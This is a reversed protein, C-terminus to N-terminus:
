AGSPRSSCLRSNPPPPRPSGYNSFEHSRRRLLCGCLDKQIKDIRHNETPSLTFLHGAQVRESFMDFQAVGDCDSTYSMLTGRVTPRHDAEPPQLGISGFAYADVGPCSPWSADNVESPWSNAIFQAAAGGLSHGVLTLKDNETRLWFESSIREKEFQSARECITYVAFKAAPFVCGEGVFNSIIQWSTGWNTGPLTITGDPDIKPVVWESNSDGSQRGAVKLQIIDAGTNRRYFSMEVAADFRISQDRCGVHLTNNGPDDSLPEVFTQKGTQNGVVEGLLPRFDSIWTTPVPIPLMDLVPPVHTTTDDSCDIPEDEDRHSPREALQSYRFLEKVVKRSEDELLRCAQSQALAPFSFLLLLGAILFGANRAWTTLATCDFHNNQRHRVVELVQHIKEELDVDNWSTMAPETRNELGAAACCRM